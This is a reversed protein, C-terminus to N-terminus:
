RRLAELRSKAEHVGAANAKAYLDQARREDGRTGYTGWKALILPDYTEALAFSAQASGMEVARELVLRAAGIDGQRLLSSARAVLGGAEAAQEPAPQAVARAPAARTQEATPNTAVEISKDRATAGTTLAAGHAKRDEAEYAHIASRSLPLHQAQVDIRARLQRLEAASAEAAQKQLLIEESAKAARATQTESDRHAAALDQELRTSREREKQLDTAASKEVARLRSTEKGAESVLVAKSEVDRRAAALDQELRASREREKQLDTAASKGVAQLRSAEKGAETVLVVKSEVDRRAAALDQALRTSREHEKQLEAAGSKEVAKLRSVEEDAKTALATKTAVDRRAAALDLELRDARAAQLSNQLEAAGSERERKLRASEESAKAALATQTEVDSRAAALDQELRVLREREDPTAKHVSAAGNEAVQRLEAAEEGAKRAQAEFAYITSRTQSLEQALVDARARSERLEAAGAEVTRKQRLAEDAAKAALATQAEVDRRAVALDQELRASREREKQLSGQSEAAGSESQQKLRSVEEGAKTALAAQTEVNSRAAALDRELRAFREGEDPTFKSVSATCSAVAQRLETAEDGSKRVQAEYAYISSRSLSLDQALAEARERLQRLEAAGVDAAQKQRLAEEKTTTALAMQTEVDRRAAALDQELQASRERERLLSSQLETAGSERMGKLRSVEEGAKAALATQTEVNRRLAELDQELRASRERERQLDAAGGEAAAKLRSAEEGTKTALVTQTEVDRRAAALDRELREARERTEQLSNLLEAGGQAAQKEEAAKDTLAAQAEIDRRAAALSQEMSEARYREQELRQLLEIDRRANTLECSLSEAWNYERKSAQGTDSVSAQAVQVPRDNGGRGPPLAESARNRAAEIFGLSRAAASHQPQTSPHARDPSARTEPACAMALMAATTWSLASRGAKPLLRRSSDAIDCGAVAKDKLIVPGM